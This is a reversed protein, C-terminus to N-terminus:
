GMASREEETRPRNKELIIGMASREEETRSRLKGTEPDRILYEPRSYFKATCGDETKTGPAFRVRKKGPAPRVTVTSQSKTGNPAVAIQSVAKDRVEKPIANLM